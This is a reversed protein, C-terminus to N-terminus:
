LGPAFLAAIVIIPIDRLRSDSKIQELVQFGDLEPMVLDLLVVDFPECVLMDLAQRGDEAMAPTHGEMKLSHALKMRNVRNDDVVLIHGKAEVM